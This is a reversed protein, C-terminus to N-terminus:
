KSFLSTQLLFQIYYLTWFKPVVESDIKDLSSELSEIDADLLITDLIVSLRM